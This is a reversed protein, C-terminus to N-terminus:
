SYIVNSVLLSSRSLTASSDGNMIWFSLKELGIRYEHILDHLLIKYKPLLHKYDNNLIRQLCPFPHLEKDIQNILLNLKDLFDKLCVIMNM